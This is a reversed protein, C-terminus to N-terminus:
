FDNPNLCKRNKENTPANSKNLPKTLHIMHKLIVDDFFMERRLDCLFIKLIINWLDTLQETIELYETLWELVM